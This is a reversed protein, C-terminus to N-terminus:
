FLLRDAVRAVAVMPRVDHVRVIHAGNLIAATITAATGFLLEESVLEKGSFRKRAASVAEKKHVEGFLWKRIFSKRSPGVLLPYGLRALSSLGALIQFNQEATKGFGLGPDLVIQQRSIGARLAKRISVQLGQRIAPLIRGVPQLKQMTRPTGRMHMLIVAARRDGVVTAMRADQRLGSVDNVIEAGARLAREAVSAKYTDISIPIRLGKRRLTEIVPITREREEQEEIPTAGPRTSEGGIDLIDAGEREMELGRAIAARRDFYAGRESFSDPTVNLIGMVLTREGLLLSRNPLQLHFRKRPKM